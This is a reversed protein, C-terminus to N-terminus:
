GNIRSAFLDVEPFFDLTNIIYDFALPDLMWVTKTENKRSEEDAEVNLVGPIHAAILWNNRDLAWQGVQQVIDNM